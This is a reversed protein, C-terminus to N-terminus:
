AVPPILGRRSRFRGVQVVLVAVFILGAGAWGLPSLREGLLLIGAMAAFVTELSMIITAEAPPAHALAIAMIGFGLAGSVLGVFLIDPWAAAIGALSGGESALAVPIAVLAVLAFQLCTYGFPRGQRAAAETVLIHMAWGVTSVAVLWDGTSLGGFSAGGLLWSGAFALAVGVWVVPLPARRHVLWVMLPVMVVYLSTLLGANIVTATVIGAQQLFGATLFAFGGMAVILLFRRPSPGKAARERWALPALAFASVAARLGIFLLPGIHAMANKQFYFALGWVLAAALLLLDAYIRKM